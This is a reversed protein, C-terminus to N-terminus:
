CTLVGFAPRAITRSVVNPAHRSSDKQALPSLFSLALGDERDKGQSWEYAKCVEKPKYISCATASSTENSMWM